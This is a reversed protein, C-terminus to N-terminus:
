STSFDLQSLLAAPFLDLWSDQSLNIIQAGGKREIIKQYFKYQLFVNLSSEHQSIIDVWANQDTANKRIDKEKAYFNQINKKFDRLVTHDCGLLYIEEYGMYILVPLIMLPSTQPKRVPRLLDVKRSNPYKSLYLYYIKRLPFLNYKDVLEKTSTGLVINTEEPLAQDAQKLWDVYNELILPPHYPAFFHLKPRLLDLDDHLFFNSLSFCDEGVLPSLDELKLSPGTALLFARKKNGKNKLETNARLLKKDSSFYFKVQYIRRMLARLFVPPLYAEAIKQLDQIM